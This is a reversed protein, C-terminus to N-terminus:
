YQVRNSYGPHKMTTKSVLLDEVGAMNVESGAVQGMMGPHSVVMSIELPRVPRPRLMTPPASVKSTPQFFIHTM